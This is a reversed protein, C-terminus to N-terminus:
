NVKNIKTKKHHRNVNYNQRQRQSEGLTLTEMHYSLEMTRRRAKNIVKPSTLNLSTLSPSSIVDSDYEHKDDLNRERSYSSSSEILTEMADTIRDEDHERKLFLVDLTGEIYSSLWQSCTLAYKSENKMFEDLGIDDKIIYGYSDQFQNDLACDPCEVIVIREGTTMTVCCNKRCGSCMIDCESLANIVALKSQGTSLPVMISIFRSM